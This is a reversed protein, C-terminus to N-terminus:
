EGGFLDYFRIIDVREDDFAFLGTQSFRLTHYDRGATIELKVVGDSDFMRFLQNNAEDPEYFLWFLETGLIKEYGSGWIEGLDEVIFVTDIDESYIDFRYFARNGHYPLGIVEGPEGEIPEVWRIRINPTYFANILVGQSDVAAIAFGSLLNIGMYVTGDQGISNCFNSILFSDPLLASEFYRSNAWILDGTITRKVVSDGYVEVFFGLDEPFLVDFMVTPKGLVTDLIINGSSDCIFIGNSNDGGSNITGDFQAFLSFYENAKLPYYFVPGPTINGWLCDGDLSIKGFCDQFELYEWRVNIPIISTDM